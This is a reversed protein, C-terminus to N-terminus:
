PNAIPSCVQVNNMLANPEVLCYWPKVVQQLGTFPQHLDTNRLPISVPVKLNIPVTQNTVAINFPAIYVSLVTTDRPLTVTAPADIIVGGQNIKVNANPIIADQALTIQTPNQSLDVPITLNLPINDVVDISTSITANDMLVFNEYLGGLLSSVQDDATLQIAGLMRLLILVVALMVVNVTISMISAITWFAPLLKFRSLWSRNEAPQEAAIVPAPPPPIVPPKGGNVRPLRSTIPEEVSANMIKRFRSPGTSHPAPTSM